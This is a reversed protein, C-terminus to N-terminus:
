CAEYLNGTESVCKRIADILIFLDGLDVVGNGDLDEGSEGTAGIRPLFIFLDVLDVLGSNNFDSSRVRHIPTSEGDYYVPDAGQYDIATVWIDHVGLGPICLADGIDAVTCHDIDDFCLEYVVGPIQSAEWYWSPCEVLVEQGDYWEVSSATKPWCVVTVGFTAVVGITLIRSHM